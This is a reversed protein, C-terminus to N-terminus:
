YIGYARKIKEQDKYAKIRAYDGASQYFTGYYIVGNIGIVDIPIRKDGFNSIYSRGSYVKGLTMGSFTIARYVYPSAHKRTIYIFYRDPPDNCFEYTEIASIEDHSPSLPLSKAMEPNVYNLGPYLRERESHYLDYKTRLRKYESENIM